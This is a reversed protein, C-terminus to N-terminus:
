EKIIVNFEFEHKRNDSASPAPFLANKFIAVACKEFKENKDNKLNVSLNTPRGEDDILFDVKYNIIKERGSLKSTSPPHPRKEYCTCTQKGYFQVKSSIALDYKNTIEFNKLNNCASKEELACGKKNFEIAKAINGSKKYFYALKSCALGDGRECSSSVEHIDYIDSTRRGEQKPTACSYLTLFLILIIPSKM